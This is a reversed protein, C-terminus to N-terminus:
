NEAWSKLYVCPPHYGYKQFLISEGDEFPNFLNDVNAEKLEPIWNSIFRAKPDSRKALNPINIYFDDKTDLSVGAVINWNGYNSCPDYDTLMSEFYEAGQIWNLKLENVLFSAVCLRGINSMFGTANLERMNADIFPYGTKGSKWKEFLEPKDNYVPSERDRIGAPKFIKNGHKKAMFRHFDRWMLETLFMNTSKSKDHREEYSKIEYYLKKPSLCGQSLYASLKSSCEKARLQKINNQHNAISDTDWVYESLMDLAAKEGGKLYSLDENDSVLGFDNMSPIEGMEIDENPSHIEDFTLELPKRVPIFKELEKKFQSFSDPCHSIPFPLDATYYLMKGRFYRIEQGIHWLENELADQVDLEEQTRERNCYVYSTKFARALQPIIEEPKGVRVLLDSNFSRLSERLDEVSEIIFQTRFRSTKPFGFPTKSTFVREDFVYVPIIEDNQSIADFLAENDHIRLDNRFWVISRRM